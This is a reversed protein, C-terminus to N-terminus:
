RAAAALRAALARDLVTIEREGVFFALEGTQLNRVHVVIPETLASTSLEAEPAQQAPLARAPVAAEAPTRASAIAVAGVTAVGAATKVMGRRSLQRQEDLADNNM